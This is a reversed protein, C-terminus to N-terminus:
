ILSASPKAIAFTPIANPTHRINWVFSELWAPLLGGGNDAFFVAIIKGCLVCLACLCPGFARVKRHSRQIKTTLYNEKKAYKAYKATLLGM